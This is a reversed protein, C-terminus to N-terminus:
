ETSTAGKDVNPNLTEYVRALEENILVEKPLKELASHKQDTLPQNSKVV